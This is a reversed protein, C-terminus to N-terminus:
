GKPCSISKFVNHNKVTHTHQDIKIGPIKIHHSKAHPESVKSLWWTPIVLTEKDGPKTEPMPIVTIVLKVYRASQDNEKGQEILINTTVKNTDKIMDHKEFFNIISKTRAISLDKNDEIGTAATMKPSIPTKDTSSEIHMHAILLNDKNIEKILSDLKQQSNESLKFSGSDFMDSADVTITDMQIPTGKAAKFISDLQTADLQWGLKIYSALRSSDLKSDYKIKVYETNEKKEQGPAPTGHTIHNQVQGQVGGISAITTLVGLAINALAGEDLNENNFDEGSHTQELFEKFSLIHSM